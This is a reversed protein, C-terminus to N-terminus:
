SQVLEIMQHLTLKSPVFDTSTSRSGCLLMRKEHHLFWTADPELERVKTFTESFDVNSTQKARFQRQGELPNIQIVLVAGMGWAKESLGSAASELAIGEGWQTDFEIHKEWDLDLQAVSKYYGFASALIQAGFAYVKQNDGNFLDFSYEVPVTMSWEWGPLTKLEGLDERHVWSAMRDLALRDLESLHVSEEKQLWRWVLSTASEGVDGKHEDFMGGGIGIAIAGEPVATQKIGKQIFEIAADAFDPHFTILLWLATVDDIHPRAHTILLKKM